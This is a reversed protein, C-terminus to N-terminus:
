KDIRDVNVKAVVEDMSLKGRNYKHLASKKISFKMIEPFDKCGKCTTMNVEFLLVEDSDLNKLTRGYNVM